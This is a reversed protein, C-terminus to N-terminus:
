DNVQMKGYLFVSGKENQGKNVVRNKGFDENATDSRKSNNLGRGKRYM